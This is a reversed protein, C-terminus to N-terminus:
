HCGGPVRRAGAPEPDHALTSGPYPEPPGASTAVWIVASNTSESLSAHFPTRVAMRM